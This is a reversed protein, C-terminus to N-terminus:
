KKPCSYMLVTPTARILVPNPLDDPADSGPQSAAFEQLVVIRVGCDLQWCVYRSTFNNIASCLHPRFMTLKSLTHKAPTGQQLDPHQGYPCAVLKKGGSTQIRVTIAEHRPDKIHSHMLHRVYQLQVFKYHLGKRSLIDSVIPSLFQTQSLSNQLTLCHTQANKEAEVLSTGM